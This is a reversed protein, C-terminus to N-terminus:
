VAGNTNNAASPVGRPAGAATVVPVAVVDAAVQPQAFPVRVTVATSQLSTSGPLQLMVSGGAVVLKSRAFSAGWTVAGAFPPCTVPPKVIAAVEGPPPRRNRM